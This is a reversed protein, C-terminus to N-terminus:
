KLRKRIENIYLNKLKTSFLPNGVLIVHNNKDVLFTQLMKEKSLKNERSFSNGPDLYMPFISHIYKENIHRFLSLDDAYVYFIVQPKKDPFSRTVFLEWKKLDQICASCNGDIYSVIKINSTCLGLKYRDSDQDTKYFEVSGPILLERGVRAKIHDLLIHDRKFKQGCGFCLLLIIFQIVLRYRM